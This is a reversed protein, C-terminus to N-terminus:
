QSSDYGLNEYNKNELKSSKRPERKDENCKKKKKKNTKLKKWTYLDKNLITITM